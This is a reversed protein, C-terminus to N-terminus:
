PRPSRSIAIFTGLPDNAADDELKGWRRATTGGPDFFHQMAKNLPFPGETRKAAATRLAISDRDRRPPHTRFAVTPVSGVPRPSLRIRVFVPIPKRAGMGASSDSSPDNRPHRSRNGSLRRPMFVVKPMPSMPMAAKETNKM